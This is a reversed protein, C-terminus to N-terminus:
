PGKATFCTTLAPKWEAAKARAKWDDQMAEWMARHKVCLGKTTPGECQNQHHRRCRGTMDTM